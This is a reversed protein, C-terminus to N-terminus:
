WLNRGDVTDVPVSGLDFDDFLRANIGVKPNDFDPRGNSWDPSISHTGCGCTACFHHAVTKSRWRYTPLPDPQRTVKVESPKYYAWLAGRKSCFTCTCATVKEPSHDVEIRIAGCHCSAILPM